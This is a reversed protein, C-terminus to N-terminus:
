IVSSVMVKSVPSSLTRMWVLFHAIEVVAFISASSALFFYVILGCSVAGRGIHNVTMDAPPTKKDSCSLFRTSKDSNARASAAHPTHAKASSAQADIRYALSPVFSEVMPYSLEIMLKRAATAAPPAAPKFCRFCRRKVPKNQAKKKVAHKSNIPKRIFPLSLPLATSLM